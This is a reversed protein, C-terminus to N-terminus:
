GAEVTCEYLDVEGNAAFGRYLEWFKADVKTERKSSDRARYRDVARPGANYVAYTARAANEPTGTQDGEKIGYRQLYQMLIEAGARANYATNWKLQEVDYFGRWVRPNIQM